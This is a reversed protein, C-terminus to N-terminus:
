PTILVKGFQQNSRLYSFASAYDALPFSRDALISLLGENFGQTLSTIAKAKLDPQTLTEDLTYGKFTLLRKMLVGAHVDMPRRDLLGHVVIRGGRRASKILCRIAPGAVADFSLDLGEPAIKSIAQEFAEFDETEGPQILVHQAGLAKLREAKEQSTTTAIVTAGTELAIQIAAIGVASSAASILITQGQCLQGNDIIGGWATLYAMWIGGALEDTVESPSPILQASAFLGHDALCGQTQVDILMPCTAVRDGVKFPSRSGAEVVRGAGEFGMRSNDGPKSFYRNAPYLLDARNLGMSTFEVLVEDDNPKGMTEQQLDFVPNQGSHKLRLVRSHM